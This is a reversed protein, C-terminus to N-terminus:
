GLRVLSGCVLSNQMCARHCHKLMVPFGPCRSASLEITEAPGLTRWLFLLQVQAKARSLGDHLLLNKRETHM